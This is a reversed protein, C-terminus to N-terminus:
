SEDMKMYSKEKLDSNEEELRELISVTVASPERELIPVTVAPPLSVDARM